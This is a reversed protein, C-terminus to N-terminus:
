FKILLLNAISAMSWNSLLSSCNIWLSFFLHTTKIYNESNNKSVRKIKQNKTPVLIPLHSSTSQTYHCSISILTLINKMHTKVTIGINLIQDKLLFNNLKPLGSTFLWYIDLSSISLGLELLHSGMTLDKLLTINKMISILPSNKRMLWKWLSMRLTRLTVISAM